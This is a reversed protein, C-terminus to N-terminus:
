RLFDYRLQKLLHELCTLIHPNDRVKWAGLLYSRKNLPHPRKKEFLATTRSFRFSFAWIVTKERGFHLLKILVKQSHLFEPKNTLPNFTSNFWLFHIGSFQIQLITLYFYIESFLDPNFKDRNFDCVTFIRSNKRQRHFDGATYRSFLPVGLM